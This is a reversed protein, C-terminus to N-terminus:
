CQKAGIEKLRDKLASYLASAYKKEDCLSSRLVRERLDIRAMSSRPGGLYQNVCTFCYEDDTDRTYDSDQGAANLLSAGVRAQHSTGCLTVVPVGMVLSECTTTTGNYPFTDLTLDIDNYCKMHEIHTNAYPLFIIRDALVGRKSFEVLFNTRVAEEQYAMAKLVLKSNECETLVRAWLDLVKSTIKEVRSFSGFTFCRDPLEASEIPSLDVPRPRYCLFCRNLRILSEAACEDVDTVKDVIRYDIAKIGTSFPYGIYSVQMPAPKDVFIPLRLGGDTHGCLDFLIDIGDSNIKEGLLENSINEADVWKHVYSKMEFTVEDIGGGTRYLYIRIGNDGAGSLMPRLFNSVAHSYIDSSIIGVKIYKPNVYRYNSHDYKPAGDIHKGYEIHKKLLNNANPEVSCYWLLLNSWANLDLHKIHENIRIADKVNGGRSLALAQNSWATSNEPMRKLIYSFCKKARNVQWESLYIYGLFFLAQLNEPNLRFARGCIRKAEFYKRARIMNWVDANYGEFKVECDLM